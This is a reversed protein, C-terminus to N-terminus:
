DFLNRVNCIPKRKNILAREVIFAESENLDAAIIKIDYKNPLSNVFTKWLESRQSECSEWARGNKGKGIYFCVGDYEHSYVYFKENKITGILSEWFEKYIVLQKSNIGHKTSQNITGKPKGSNGKKFAGNNAM